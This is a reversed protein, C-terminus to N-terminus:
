SPISMEYPTKSKCCSCIDSLASRFKVDFCTYIVPNVFHNVIMFRALIMWLVLASNSLEFYRVSTYALILTVATPVFSIIFMIVILAYMLNFGTQIGKNGLQRNPGKESPHLPEHETGLVQFVKRIRVAILAYLVVLIILIATLLTYIGGLHLFILSRYHRANDHDIIKCLTGTVNQGQFNVTMTSTGSFFLCPMMIFASFIVSFFISCRRWKLTVHRESPQCVKKYRQVAIVLLLTPSLLGNFMMSFTLWRCLHESPYNFIFYNDMLNYITMTISGLMDVVALVPIFYRDGNEDEIKCWYLIIVIINGVIGLAGAVTIFVTCPLLIEAYEQSLNAM